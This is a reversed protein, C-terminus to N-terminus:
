LLWLRRRNHAKSWTRVIQNVSHFWGEQLRLETLEAGNGAVDETHSSKSM